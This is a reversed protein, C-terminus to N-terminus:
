DLKENPISHSDHMKHWCFDTDFQDDVVLMQKVHNLLRHDYNQVLRSEQLAMNDLDIDANKDLPDVILFENIDGAMRVSQKFEDSQKFKLNRYKNLFYRYSFEKEIRWYDLESQNTM